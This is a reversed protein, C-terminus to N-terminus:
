IMMLLAAILRFVSDFEVYINITKLISELWYIDIWQCRFLFDM